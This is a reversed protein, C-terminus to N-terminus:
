APCQAAKLIFLKVKTKSSSQNSSEESKTHNGVMAFILESASGQKAVRLDILHPDAKEAPSSNKSIGEFFSISSM